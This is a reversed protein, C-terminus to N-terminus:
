HMEKRMKELFANVEEPTKRLSSVFDGVRKGDKYVIMSPIGMIGEDIALDLNEDRDLKYFNFDPNAKEIAPYHPDLYVCDPCWAASWIMVSPTDGAAAELMEEKTHLKKM